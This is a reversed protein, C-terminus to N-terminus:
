RGVMVVVVKIAQNRANIRKTCMELPVKRFKDEDISGLWKHDLEWTWSMHRGTQSVAQSAAQLKTSMSVEQDINWAVLLLISSGVLISGDRNDKIVM